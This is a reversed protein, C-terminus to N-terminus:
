TLTEKVHSVVSMAALLCTKAPPPLARLWGKRGWCWLMMFHVRTRFHICPSFAWLLYSHVCLCVFGSYCMTPLFFFLAVAQQFFFFFNYCVVRLNVCVACLLSYLYHGCKACSFALLFYYFFFYFPSAGLILPGLNLLICLLVSACAPGGSAPM